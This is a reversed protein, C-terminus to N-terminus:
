TTSLYMTVGPAGYLFYLMWEHGWLRMLQEDGSVCPFSLTSSCEIISRHNIFKKKIRHKHVGDYVAEGSSSFRGVILDQSSAGFRRRWAKRCISIGIKEDTLSLTRTLDTCEHDAPYFSSDWDIIDTVGYRALLNRRRWLVIPGLTAM